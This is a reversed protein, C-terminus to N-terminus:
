AAIEKISKSNHQKYNYASLLEKQYLVIHKDLNQSLIIIFKNRPSFFLLLLNLFDKRFLINCKLKALVLFKM